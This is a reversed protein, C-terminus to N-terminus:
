ELSLSALDKCNLPIFFSSHIITGDIDLTIKGIYAM